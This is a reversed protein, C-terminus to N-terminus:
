NKLSTEMQKPLSHQKEAPEAPSSGMQLTKEPLPVKGHVCDEHFGQLGAMHQQM